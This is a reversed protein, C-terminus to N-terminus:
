DSTLKKTKELLDLYRKTYYNSLIWAYFFIYISLVYLTIIGITFGEKPIQDYIEKLFDELFPDAKIKISERHGKQIYLQNYKYIIYIFFEIFFEM